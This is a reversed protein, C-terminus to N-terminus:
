PRILTSSRGKLAADADCVVSPKLGRWNAWSEIEGSAVLVPPTGWGERKKKRLTPIGVASAM